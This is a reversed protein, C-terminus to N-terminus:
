YQYCKLISKTVSNFLLIGLIFKWDDWEEATKIYTTSSGKPCKSQPDDSSYESNPIVVYHIGPRPTFVERLKPNELSNPDYKKDIKTNFSNIKGNSCKALTQHVSIQLM